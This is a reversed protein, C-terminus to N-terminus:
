RKTRTHNPDPETTDGDTPQTEKATALAVRAADLAANAGTGWNCWWKQAVVMELAARLTAITADRERAVRVVRKQYATPTPMGDPLFVGREGIIRDTIDAVCEPFFLCAREHNAATHDVVAVRLAAALAALGNATMEM